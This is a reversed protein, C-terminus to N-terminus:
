VWAFRPQACEMMWRLQRTDIPASCYDTAGAELADLWERTEPIRSVVIFPMASRVQRVRKLLALWAAQEGGAFVIDVNLLKGIVNDQDQDRYQIIQHRDVALARCIQGAATQEVGILAIVAMVPDRLEAECGPLVAFTDPAALRHAM